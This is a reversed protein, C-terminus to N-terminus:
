KGHSVRLIKGSRKDIEAIPVGGVRGAPLSGTVIWIGDKLRAKYPAKKQIREKGYIPSWAAVAVAIAVDKTQIYGEKPIVNHKKIEDAHTLVAFLISM